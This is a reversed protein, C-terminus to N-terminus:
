EFAKLALGWNYKKWKIKPRVNEPILQQQYLLQFIGKKGGFDGRFWSLIAPLEVTNKEKNFLVENKLYARTALDLQKNIKEPTYFAIPPCSKAGCNLAFHIRYDLHAVRFQKEFKSKFPKRFYGLSYKAMSRRLIGHEICDLSLSHGAIHIFKNSFFKNRSKYAGPNEILSIQIFANYINLWFVKKDTDTQLQLALEKQSVQNLKLIFDTVAKDTKVAYLLEESVKIYDVKDQAMLQIGSFLLSCYFFAVKM